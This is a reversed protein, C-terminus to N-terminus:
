QLFTIDFVFITFRFFFCKYLFINVEYYTKQLKKELNDKEKQYYIGAFIIVNLVLLSCGVAITVVLATSYVTQQEDSVGTVNQPIVNMPKETAPVIETDIKVTINVNKKVTDNMQPELLQVSEVEVPYPTTLVSHISGSNDRHRVVGDYSYPNDHDHLRHHQISTNGDSSDHLRPILNLWYSLRHAHYHDRVRPKM